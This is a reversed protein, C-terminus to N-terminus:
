HWVWRRMRRQAGWGLTIPDGEELSGVDPRWRMTICMLSQFWVELVGIGARSAPGQTVRERPKAKVVLSVPSIIKQIVPM